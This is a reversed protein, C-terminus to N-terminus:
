TKIIENFNMVSARAKGVVKFHLDSGYFYVSLLFQKQNNFSNIQAYM